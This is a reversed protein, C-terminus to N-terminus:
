PRWYFSEGLEESIALFAEGGECSYFSHRHTSLKNPPVDEPWWPVKFTPERAKVPEIRECTAGFEIKETGDFRFALMSRNTDLNHREHIEVASKPLWEPIWGRAVAGDSVAEKFTPYYVEPTEGCGLLASVVIVAFFIIVRLM